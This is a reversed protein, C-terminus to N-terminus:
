TAESMNPNPFLTRM